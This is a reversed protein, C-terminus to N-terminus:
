GRFILVNSPKSKAVVKNLCCKIGMSPSHYKSKQSFKNIGVSANVIMVDCAVSSGRSTKLSTMKTMLQPKSSLVSHPFVTSDKLGM